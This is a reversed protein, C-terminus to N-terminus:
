THQLTIGDTTLHFSDEVTKRKQDSCFLLVQTKDPNIALNHEMSFQHVKDLDLQLIDSSNQTDSADFHFIIQTDDAFTQIGSNDVAKHLDCM